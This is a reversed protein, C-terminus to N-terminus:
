VTVNSIVCSLALDLNMQCFKLCKSRDRSYCFSRERLNRYSDLFEGWVVVPWFTWHMLCQCPNQSMWLAQESQM